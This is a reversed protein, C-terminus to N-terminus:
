AKSIPVKRAPQPEPAPICIELVGDGYTASIDTATVGDPLPLSRSFAGHRMEHRVYGGSDTREYDRREGDIWLMGHLVTLELDEDPDIGPLEARVVITGNRRFQDVRTLEAPWAPLLPLQLWHEFIRDFRDLADPGEFAAVTTTSAPEAAKVDVPVANSTTADTTAPVAPTTTQSKRRFLRM